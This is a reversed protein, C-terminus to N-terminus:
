DTAASEIPNEAYARFGTPVEVVGDPTDIHEADPPLTVELGEWNPPPEYYGSVVLSESQETLAVITYFSEPPLPVEWGPALITQDVLVNGPKMTVLLGYGRHVTLSKEPAAQTWYALETRNGPLIVAANRSARAEDGDSYTIELYTYAAGDSEEQSESIAVRRDPHDALDAAVDIGYAAAIEEPSHEAGPAIM